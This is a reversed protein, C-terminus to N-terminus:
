NSNRTIKPCPKNRNFLRNRCDRANHSFCLSSKLQDDTLHLLKIRLDLYCPLLNDWTLHILGRVVKQPSSYAVAHVLMDLMEHIKHRYLLSSNLCPPSFFQDFPLGLICINRSELVQVFAKQREGFVIGCCQVSQAPYRSIIIGHKLGIRCHGHSLYIASPM